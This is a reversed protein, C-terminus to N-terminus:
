FNLGSKDSWEPAGYLVVSEEVVSLFYDISELLYNREEKLKLLSEGIDFRPASSKVKFYQIMKKRSIDSKIENIYRTSAKTVYSSLSINKLEEKLVNWMPRIESLSNLDILSLPTERMFNKKVPTEHFRELLNSSINLAISKSDQFKKITKLFSYSFGTDVTELINVQSAIMYNAIGTLRLALNMDAMDCAAFTVTEFFLNSEKLTEVFKASGYESKPHSYDFSDVDGHGVKDNLSFSHGRYILHLATSPFLDTTLSFVSRLFDKSSTNVENEALYSKMVIKQRDERTSISPVRFKVRRGNSYIYLLSGWKKASRYWKDSGRQDHILVVNCECDQAFKLVQERDNRDVREIMGDRGPRFHNADGNIWIIFTNSAVTSNLRAFRADEFYTNEALVHINFFNLLLILLLFRM